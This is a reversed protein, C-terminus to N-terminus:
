SEQRYIIGCSCVDETMGRRIIKTGQRIEPRFCITVNENGHYDKNTCAFKFVDKPLMVIRGTKPVSLRGISKLREFTERSNKLISSM